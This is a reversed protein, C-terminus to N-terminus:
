IHWIPTNEENFTIVNPNLLVEAEAWSMTVLVLNIRRGLVVLFTFCVFCMLCCNKLCWAHPFFPYYYVLHTTCNGLNEAKLPIWAMAYLPLVRTSSPWSGSNFLRLQADPSSLLLKCSLTGLLLPSCQPLGCPDASCTRSM